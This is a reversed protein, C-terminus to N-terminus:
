VALRHGRIEFVVHDGIFYMNYQFKFRRNESFPEHNMVSDHTVENMYLDSIQIYDWSDVLFFKM